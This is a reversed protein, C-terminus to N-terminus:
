FFTVAHGGEVRQSPSMAMVRFYLMDFYEKTLNDCGL